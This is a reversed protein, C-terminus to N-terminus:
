FHKRERRPNRLVFEKALKKLDIDDLHKKYIGLVMYHNLREQLMSTRTHTKILKLKSFSRESTANTAPLILVIEFLKIVESLMGRYSPEMKKFYEIIDDFVIKERKPFNASFIKLQIKLSDEDFDHSRENNYFSLIQKLKADYDSSEAALILLKQLTDYYELGKQNFRDELSKSVNEFATIYIKEYYEEVTTPASESESDSKNRYRVPKNSPRPLSPKEVGLKKAKETTETWFKSFEQKMVNLTSISKKALEKGEYASLNREQLQTALLDSVALTEIALSLGFFFEFKGMQYLFGYLHAKMDPVTEEPASMEFLTMISSYNLVIRILSEKKVTWRTECFAKLNLSNENDEEKITNLLAERKPSWNINKAIEQSTSLANKM